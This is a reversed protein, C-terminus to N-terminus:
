GRSCSNTARSANRRPILGFPRRAGLAPRHADPREIPFLSRRVEREREYDNLTEPASVAVRPAPADASEVDSKIVKRLKARGDAGKWRMEAPDEASPAANEKDAHVPLTTTADM